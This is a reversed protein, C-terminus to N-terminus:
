LQKVANVGVAYSSGSNVWKTHERQLVENHEEQLQYAKQHTDVSILHDLIDNINNVDENFQDFFSPNASPIELAIAILQNIQLALAETNKGPFVKFHKM